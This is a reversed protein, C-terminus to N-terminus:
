RELQELSQPASVAAPHFWHSGAHSTSLPRRSFLAINTQWDSGDKGGQITGETEPRAPRGLRNYRISRIPPPPLIRVWPVRLPVVTKLVSFLLNFESHAMRCSCAPAVVTLRNWATNM